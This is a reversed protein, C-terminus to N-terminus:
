SIMIRDNLQPIHRNCIIYGMPSYSANVGKLAHSKARAHIVNDARSVTSPSSGSNIEDDDDAGRGAVAGEPGDM